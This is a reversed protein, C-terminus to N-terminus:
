CFIISFIDFIILIFFYIAYIPFIFFSIISVIINVVMVFGSFNIVNNKKFNLVMLPIILHLSSFAFFIFMFFIGAFIGLAAIGDDNRVSLLYSDFIIYGIFMAGIIFGIIGFILKYIAIRKAKKNIVQNSDDINSDDSTIKFGCKCCYNSDMKNKCNPCEIM